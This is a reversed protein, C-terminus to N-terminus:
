CHYPNPPGRNGCYVLFCFLFERVKTHGKYTQICSKHRIDWVKMNTDDSGSAIFEGYPHYCVSGVSALHGNLSRSVKSEALDMVKVSGGSSGTVLFEEELDFTCSVVPSQNGGMTM